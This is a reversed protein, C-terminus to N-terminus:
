RAPEIAAWYRTRMRVRVPLVDTLSALIRDTDDLPFVGSIRLGAVESSCRVVGPRYRALEDAFEGLRMEDAM